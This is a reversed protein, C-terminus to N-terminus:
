IWENRPRRVQTLGILVSANLSQPSPSKSPSKMTPSKSPSRSRSRPSSTSKKKRKWAKSHRNSDTCKDGPVPLTVMLRPLQSSNEDSHSAPHPSPIRSGSTTGQNRSPSSSRIPLENGAQLAVGSPSIPRQSAIQLDKLLTTTKRAFLTRKTHLDYELLQSHRREGEYPESDPQQKQQQQRGSTKSTKKDAEDDEEEQMTKWMSDQDNQKDGATATVNVTASRSSSGKILPGECSESTADHSTSAATPANHKQQGISNVSESSRSFPIVKSRTAEILQKWKNARAGRKGALGRALKVFKNKSSSSGGTATSKNGGSKGGMSKSDSALISALGDPGIPVDSEDVSTTTDMFLFNFDIGKLLRRERKRGRKGLLSLSATSDSGAVFNSLNTAVPSSNNLLRGGLIEILEFRLASIDQKIENCDDETVGRQREATRQESTIYRRVLSRM